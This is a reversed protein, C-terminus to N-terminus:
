VQRRVLVGYSYSQRDGGTGLSQVVSWIDKHQRGSSVGKQFGVTVM